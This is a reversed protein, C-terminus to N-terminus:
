EWAGSRTRVLGLSRMVSANSRARVNSRDRKAIEGDIACQAAEVTAYTRRFGGVDVQSGFSNVVIYGYESEEVTWGLRNTKTMTM